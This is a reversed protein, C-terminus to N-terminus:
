RDTIDRGLVDLPQTEASDGVGALKSVSSYSIIIMTIYIYIPIHICVRIIIHTYM